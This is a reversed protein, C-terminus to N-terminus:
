SKSSSADPPSSETQAPAEPSPPTMESESLQWIRPEIGRARLIPASMEQLRVLIRIKEEIPLAAQRRAYELKAQAMKELDFNIKDM